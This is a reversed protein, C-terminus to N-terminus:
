LLLLFIMRHNRWWTNLFELFVDKAETKRDNKHNTHQQTRTFYCLLEVCYKKLLAPTSLRLYLKRMRVCMLEMDVPIIKLFKPSTRDLAFHLLPKLSKGKINQVTESKLTRLNHAQGQAERQCKTLHSLIWALSCVPLLVANPRQSSQHALTSGLAQVRIWMRANGSFNHCVETAHTLLLLRRTPFYKM